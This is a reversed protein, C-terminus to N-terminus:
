SVHRVSGFWIQINRKLTGHLSKERKKGGLMTFNILVKSGSDFATFLFLGLHVMIGTSCSSASKLIKPVEKSNTWFVNVL